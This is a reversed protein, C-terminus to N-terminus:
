ETSLGLRTATNGDVVPYVTERPIYLEACDSKINQRQQQVFQSIDQINVIWDRAYASLVSGRLGLQIARRELRAGWPHRDPDWQLRVLSTKVAKEWESESEYVEPEFKSHVAQALIEDFAARKIWIALVM